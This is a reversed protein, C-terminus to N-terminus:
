SEGAAYAEYAQKLRKDYKNVAYKPGNYGRAFAAWDRSRLHVDLGQAKVFRVFALLQNAESNHMAEVFEEVSSYGASKYNFGMIQFAGWSSSLMAANRDLGKAVEFRAFEAIGDKKYHEKTFTKYVVLRFPQVYSRRLTSM